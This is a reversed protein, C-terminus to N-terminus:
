YRPLKSPPPVPPPEPTPGLDTWDERWEPAQWILKV